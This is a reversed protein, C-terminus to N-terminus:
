KEFTDVVAFKMHIFKLLILVDRYSYAQMESYFLSQFYHLNTNQM